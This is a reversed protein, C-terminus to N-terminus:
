GDPFGMKKTVCNDNFLYGGILEYSQQFITLTHILFSCVLVCHKSLGLMKIIFFVSICACALLHSIFWPIRSIM